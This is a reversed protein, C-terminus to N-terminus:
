RGEYLAVQAVMRRIGEQFTAEPVLLSAVLSSPEEVDFLYGPHVLVGGRELMELAWAEDDQGEPLDLMAYWGGSAKRVTVRSGAVQRMLEARNRALRARLRDQWPDALALLDPLARMVPTSVSLFTDAIIELRGLAEDVLAKPGNVVIWGLKMQPLGAVKSLGSLAFSLAGDERALTHEAFAGPGDAYDLFVEDAILALDRAAAIEVLRRRARADLCNGTPNNPNVTILARTVPDIAEELSALDLRWGAAETYRLHYPALVVDALDALFSFLPYSPRPMAVQDGPNALLRFLFTYAESTTAVIAIREPPVTVGRRAYYATISERALETGLPSPRYALADEHALARLIAASEYELGVDTPNSATLDILDSGAITRASATARALDNERRPWSSRASFM